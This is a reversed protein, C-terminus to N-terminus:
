GLKEILHDSDGEVKTASSHGVNSSNASQSVWPGPGGPGMYVPV